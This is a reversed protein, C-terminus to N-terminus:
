WPASIQLFVDKTDDYVVEEFTHGVVTYYKETQEEPIPASKLTPELKGDVLKNVFDRVTEYNVELSQDLPYKRQDRLDEIAFSPWKAEPLVLSKAHEGYQTADIWVFNVVGKHEEAIPILKKILEEQEPDTPEVFIFGLPLRATVYHNYNEGSVEDILPIANSEIWEILSDDTISPVKDSPFDNRGEDFKKYLVVAPPKVGAEKAAAEDTTLGFLYKDRYSDAVSSFVPIPADETSTVYALLVVKDAAKFEEYNDLTVTSVSPLSQRSHFDESCGSFYGSIHYIM